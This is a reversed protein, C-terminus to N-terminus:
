LGGSFSWQNIFKPVAKCLKPIVLYSFTYLPSFWLIFGGLPYTPFIVGSFVLMSDLLFQYNTSTTKGEGPSERKLNWTLKRPHMNLFFLSVWLDSHKNNIQTPFGISQIRFTQFSKTKLCDSNKVEKCAKLIAMALQIDEGFELM